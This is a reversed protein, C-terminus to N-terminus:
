EITFQIKGWQESIEWLRRGAVVDTAFNPLKQVQLNSYFKGPSLESTPITALYVQTAAGQEPTKLFTGIVKDIATEWFGTPGTIKKQNWKEEGIIYRALDTNVAGPHLATVVISKSNGSADIRRQLEQTFLINALKSQGYSKWPGYSKEGNLNDIDLGGPGSSIQYALSSVNIIRANPALKPFLSATLVFHGLHNSQFTTEFGDSTLKREPLAMVGANNMLVDIVIDNTTDSGGGLTQQLRNPFSKINELSDLDLTVCYIKDNQINRSQVYDFIEQKAKDGKAQTRATIVITAGTTALEKASELGLGATGGTIVIVKGDQSHPELRLAPTSDMIASAPCKGLLSDATFLVGTGAVVTREFLGRRTFPKPSWANVISHVALLLVVSFRM